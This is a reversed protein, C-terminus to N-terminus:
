ASRRAQGSKIGSQLVQGGLAIAGGSVNLYAKGDNGKTPVIRRIEIDVEQHLVREMDAESLAAEGLFDIWYVVV